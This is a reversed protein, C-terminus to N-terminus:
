NDPFTVVSVFSAEGIGQAYRCATLRVISTFKREKKRGKKEKKREKKREKRKKKEYSM